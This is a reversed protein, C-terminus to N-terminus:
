VGLFKTNDTPNVSELNQMSFYVVRGFNVVLSHEEFPRIWVMNNNLWGLRFHLLCSIGVVIPAIHKQLLTTFTTLNNKTVVGAWCDGRIVIQQFRELSIVMREWSTKYYKSSSVDSWSVIRDVLSLLYQPWFHCFCCIQPCNKESLIWNRCGFIQFIPSIGKKWLHSM